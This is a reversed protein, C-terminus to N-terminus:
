APPRLPEGSTVWDRMKGDGPARRMAPSVRQLRVRRIAEGVVAIVVIGIALNLVDNGTRIGGLTVLLTTAAAPPHSGRALMGLLITLALAVVSAAARGPDLVKDTFLTPANFAGLAAVAVLGALLGGAHGVIV